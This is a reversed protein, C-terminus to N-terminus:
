RLDLRLQHVDIMGEATRLIGPMRVEHVFGSNCLAATRDTSAAHARIQHVGGNNAAELTADLLEQLEGRYTSYCQFELKGVGKLAGAAPSSVAASGVVRGSPTVLLKFQNAPNEEQRYVTNYFPRLSGTAEVMPPAYFIAETFDRVTWERPEPALLLATYGGLDGLTSDRIEARGDYAFYEADFQQHDAGPRLARMAIGNYRRYGSKEYVHQAIPNGTGLYIAQGGNDWFTRVSCSTLEHAIGKGRHAPHTLVYGYGGIQSSQSGTGHWATAVIAGDLEGVFVWDHLTRDATGNLLRALFEQETPSMWPDFPCAAFLWRARNVATDGRGEGPNLVTITLTEGNRLSRKLTM